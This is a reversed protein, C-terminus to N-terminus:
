SANTIKKDFVFKNDCKDQKTQSGLKNKAYNVNFKEFDAQSSKHKSVISTFTLFNKAKQKILKSKVKSKDKTFVQKLENIEM